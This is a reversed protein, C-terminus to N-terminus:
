TTVVPVQTVGTATEGPLSIRASRPSNPERNTRNAYSSTAWQKKATAICDIGCLSHQCHPRVHGPSYPALPSGFADDCVAFQFM